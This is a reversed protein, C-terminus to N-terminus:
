IDSLDAIEVPISIWRKFDNGDPDLYAGNACSCTINGPDRCDPIGNGNSDLDMSQTMGQWALVVTVTRSATDYSLCGRTGVMAGVNNGALTENAGLLLNQWQVLDADAIDMTETVGWDICNFTTTNGTGLFPTGDTSINYCNTVNGSSNARIRSAIDNALLLAQSRQYSEMEAQNARLQLAALGLLGVALIILAVLIEILTFGRSPKNMM